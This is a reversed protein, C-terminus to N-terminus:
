TKQLQEQLKGIDVSEGASPTKTPVPDGYDSLTTTKDEGDGKETARILYPKGESAVYLTKEKGDETSTLPIVKTGDVTTVEGKKLKDTDDDSDEDVSKQLKKLDCVESLGKLLPDSTSGHVYRSKFLEAAAAGDGGPVQNKWFASDPKMWVKDGRKVLDASGGGAAFTLKGTCNGDRDLTLDMSAPDDKEADTGKEELKIHVSTADLLEQKAKDSIEQASLDSTKDKKDGDDDDSSCAPVLLALAAAACVGTAARGSKLSM